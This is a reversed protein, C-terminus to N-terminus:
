PRPQTELEQAAMTALPTGPYQDILRQWIERTREVEGLKIESLRAAEVLALPAFDSRPARQALELLANIAEDWAHQWNVRGVAELAASREENAALRRGEGASEIIRTGLKYRIADLQVAGARRGTGSLLKGLSPGLEPIRIPLLLKPNTM